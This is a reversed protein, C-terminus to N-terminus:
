TAYTIILHNFLTARKAHYVRSLITSQEAVVCIQYVHYHNITDERSKLIGTEVLKYGEEKPPLTSLWTSDGEEQNIENLCIKNNPLDIIM